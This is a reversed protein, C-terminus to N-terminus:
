GSGCVSADQGRLLFALQFSSSASPPGQPRWGPRPSSSGRPGCSRREEVGAPTAAVVVRRLRTALGLALLYLLVALGLTARVDILKLLVAPLVVVVGAIGALLGLKSNAEVFETEDTVM